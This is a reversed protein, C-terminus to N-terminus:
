HWCRNTLVATADIHNARVEVTTSQPACCDTAYKQDRTSQDDAIKQLMLQQLRSKTGEQTLPSRAVPILRGLGGICDSGKLGTQFGFSRALAISLENVNICCDKHGAIQHQQCGARSHRSVAQHTSILYIHISNTRLRVCVAALTTCHM